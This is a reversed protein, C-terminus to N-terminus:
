ALGWVSSATKATLEPCNHLRDFPEKTTLVRWVACIMKHMVAVKAKMKRRPNGACVRDYLRQWAPVVRLAKPVAEALLWRIYRNSDKKLRTDRVREDSNHAGPVVGVFSALKRKTSFFGIDGIEALLLAASFRGIGPIQTLLRISEDERTSQKLWGDVQGIEESLSDALRLYGDLNARYAEPLAVHDLWARGTKGFLDSVEPAAVGVKGLLARIRCKLATRMSVLTIRYRLRERVRRVERPTIRSEPLWNMRLLQALATADVTDTKITSEAILRVKRPNALHVDLGLEDLTDVAWYWNVTAELAVRTKKPDFGEFTERFAEPRSAITAKKKVRGGQDVVVYRSRKGHLDIGITEM